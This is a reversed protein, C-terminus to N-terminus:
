AAAEKHKRIIVIGSNGRGAAFSGDGGGGGDGYSAGLWAGATESKSTGGGFSYLEGTPEGFERTTTGQGTGGHKGGGNAGDVGGEGGPYGGGGSGGDGGSANSSVGSGAKGGAAEFGLAVSKGGDSGVEGGAGIGIKYSVNAFLQVSRATTTYGSGGGPTENPLTSYLGGAGGGVLFIDVLLDKNLIFAGSTMLKIRWNDGGNDDYYNYAGSYIFKPAVGGAGGGLRMINAM